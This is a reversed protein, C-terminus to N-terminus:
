YVYTRKSINGFLLIWLVVALMCVRFFVLGKDRPEAIALVDLHAGQGGESKESVIPAAGTRTAQVDSAPQTGGSSSFTPPRRPQCQASQALLLSLLMVNCLGMDQLVLLCVLCSSLDIEFTPGLRALV